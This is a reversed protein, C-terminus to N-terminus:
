LHAKLQEFEEINIEGKALRHKLLSLSDERAIGKAATVESSGSSRFLTFIVYFLIFFCVMPLIMGWFHPFYATHYGWM